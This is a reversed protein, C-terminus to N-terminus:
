LTNKCQYLGHLQFNTELDHLHRHKITLILWIQFGKVLMSQSSDWCPYTIVHGTFHPIFNSIWEWIEATTVHGSIHSIFNSICEWVEVTIVTSTQSHILLKIECKEPCTFVIGHLSGQHHGQGPKAFSGTRPTLSWLVESLWDSM